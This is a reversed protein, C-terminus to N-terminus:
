GNRRARAAKRIANGSAGQRNRSRGAGRASRRDAPRAARTPAARPTAPLRAARDVPMDGIQRLQQPRAVQEDEVVRPHDRRPEDAPAALRRDLDGQCRSRPPPTSARRRWPPAAGAVRRGRDDEGVSKEASITALLASPSTVSANSRSPSANGRPARQAVARHRQRGVDLARAVAVGFIPAVAAIVLRDEGAGLAGDGRRGGAQMERRRQKAASAARPM